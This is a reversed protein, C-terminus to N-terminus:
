SERPEVHNDEMIQECNELSDSLSNIVAEVIWNLSEQTIARDESKYLADKLMDKSIKVRELYFWIDKISGELTNIRDVTRSLTEVAQTAPNDVRKFSVVM